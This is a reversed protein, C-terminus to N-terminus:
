KPLTSSVLGALLPALIAVSSRLNELGGAKVELYDELLKRQSIQQGLSLQGPGAQEVSVDHLPALHNIAIRCAAILRGHTPVYVLALLLSFYLGYLVVVDQSPLRVNAM